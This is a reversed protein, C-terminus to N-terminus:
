ATPQSRFGLFGSGWCGSVWGWLQDLLLDVHAFEASGRWAEVCVCVCVCVCVFCLFVLSHM